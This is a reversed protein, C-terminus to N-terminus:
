ETNLRWFSHVLFQHRLTPQKKSMWQILDTNMFILFGTSSRRTAKYGAHDSYIHMRLDVSEGRPEPIDTPIAEKVDGYFDVWKHKKFRDHYIEPYNPDFTLRSNHKAQLYSFVRFLAELHGERPLVLHSALMSIKTNIDIQRLKVM